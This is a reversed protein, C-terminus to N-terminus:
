RDSTVLGQAYRALRVGGSRRDHAELLMGVLDFSGYVDHLIRAFALMRADDLRDLRDIARIYVASEAYLLQSGPGFPGAGFVLPRLQRSFPRVFRHLMFGLRRMEVDVDGFLAQGKYIPVFDDETIQAHRKSPTPLM